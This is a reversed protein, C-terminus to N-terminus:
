VLARAGTGAARARELRDRARRAGGLPATRWRPAAAPTAHL